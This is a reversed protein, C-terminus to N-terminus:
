QNFSFPVHPGLEARGLFHAQLLHEICLPWLPPVQLEPDHLTGPGSLGPPAWHGRLFMLPIAQAPGVDVKAVRGTERAWGAKGVLFKSPFASPTM